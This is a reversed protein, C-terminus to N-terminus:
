PRGWGLSLGRNHEYKTVYFGAGEKKTANGSKDQRPGRRDRRSAPVPTDVNPYTDGVVDPGFDFVFPRSQTAGWVKSSEMILSYVPSSDNLPAHAAWGFRANHRPHPSNIQQSVNRVDWFSVVSHRAAGAAIHAGAGGGSALSYIPEPSWPDSFSFSPLLHTANTGSKEEKTTRLSSRLDYVRVGGDYWGSTVIQDSAGWPACLPSSDLAYVASASGSNGPTHLQRTNAFLVISPETGLGFATAHVTLPTSSSSSGFVAYPTSAQPRSLATWSRRQLDVTTTSPESGPLSLSVLGSSSLILTQERDHCIAEIYDEQHRSTDLIERRLELRGTSLLDVREVTGDAFGMLFNEESTFRLASVDSHRTEEEPDTQLPVSGAFSVKSNQQSFRYIYLNSGAGVLLYSRSIALVPQLKGQWPAQLPRAVFDHLESDWREDSLIDYQIRKLSPWTEPLSFSPRPHNRLYAPYAYQVILIHFSKSTLSLARLSPVDAHEIIRLILDAPLQIM